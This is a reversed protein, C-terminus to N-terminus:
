GQRMAYVFFSFSSKFVLRLSVLSANLSNNGLNMFNPSPPIPGLSHQNNFYNQQYPPTETKYMQQQFVTAAQGQPQGQTQSRAQSAGQRSTGQAAGPLGSALGLTSPGPSASPPFVEQKMFDAMQQVQQHTGPTPPLVQRTFPSSNSNFSSSMSSAGESGDNMSSGAYGAMPSASGM